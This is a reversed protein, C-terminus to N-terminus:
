GSGSIKTNPMNTNQYLKLQWNQPKGLPREWPGSSNDKTRRLKEKNKRKLKKRKPLSSMENTTDRMGGEEDGMTVGKEKVIELIRLAEWLGTCQLPPLGGAGGGAGTSSERTPNSSKCKVQSILSTVAKTLEAIQTEQRERAEKNAELEAMM